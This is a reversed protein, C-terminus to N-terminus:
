ERMNKKWRQHNVYTYVGQALFDVDTKQGKVAFYKGVMLRSSPQLTDELSAPISKKLKFFLVPGITLFDEM